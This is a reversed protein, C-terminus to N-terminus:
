ERLPTTKTDREKTEKLNISDRELTPFCLKDSLKGYDPFKWHNSAKSPSYDKGSNKKRKLSIKNITLTAV